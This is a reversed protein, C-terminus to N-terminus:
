DRRRYPTSHDWDALLTRIATVLLLPEDLMVHHGAEPIVVVPAVRGLQEYMFAGVEANALGHEARFLAVRCNIRPLFEVVKERRAQFIKADFKWTFGGGAPGISHRAVHDMVYPLYNAQEPVTRFRVVMEEPDDYIRPPKFSHGLRAEEVEPDERFVPSDIIIAGAIEDPYEAATALTVFGGMSHGVVIPPGDIDAAQAAAMIEASWTTIPYDARRDSDGHGSMDLAVVRYEASFQPAVHTWWHAHAAGGHVLVLGPRGPEGWTLYHISAGDVEVTGETFPTDLAQQFWDPPTAM